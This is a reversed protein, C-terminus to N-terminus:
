VFYVAFLVHLITSKGRFPSLPSISWSWHFRCNDRVRVTKKQHYSMDGVYFDRQRHGPLGLPRDLTRLKCKNVNALNCSVSWWRIRSQRHHSRQQRHRSRLGVAAAGRSIAGRRCVAAAGHSVAADTSREFPVNGNDFM